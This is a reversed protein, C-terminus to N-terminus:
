ASSRGAPPLRPRTPEDDPDPAKAGGNRLYRAVALVHVCYGGTYGCNCTKRKTVRFIGDPVTVLYFGPGTTVQCREPHRTQRRRNAIENM